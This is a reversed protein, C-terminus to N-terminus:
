VLVLSPGLTVSEQDLVCTQIKIILFMIFCLLSTVTIMAILKLKKSVLVNLLDLFQKNYLSKGGCNTWFMHISRKVFRSQLLSMKVFKDLPQM